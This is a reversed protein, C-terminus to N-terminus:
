GCRRRPGPPRHCRGRRRRRSGRRRAPRRGRTRASSGGECRPRRRAARRGPAAASRPMRRRLTGAAPLGAISRAPHVRLGDDAEVRYARLVYDVLGERRTKLDAISRAGNIAFWEPPMRRIAQEIVDDSMRNVVDMAVAKWASADLDALLWRDVQYANNLAGELKRPFKGSFALFDPVRGRIVAGVVGDHRVLVFDPDEPVPQWLRTGPISMWRWQGRHRDYNDTWLDVVRARLLARSDVRNEPGQLWRNWMEESSVIETAGMYGPTKDPGALPFEDFTGIENAFQRRFEGLAPDDPMIVLRPNTFAVGAAQALAAQVLAAGPHTGSTQDQALKAPWRDRWMEPLMREPHKHLSRFTYAKGDAGRM